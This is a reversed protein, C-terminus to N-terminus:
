GVIAAACASESNDRCVSTTRRQGNYFNRGVCHCCCYSRSVRLCCVRAKAFCDVCYRVPLVVVVARGRVDARECGEEEHLVGSVSSVLRLRESYVLRIISCSRGGGRGSSGRAYAVASGCHLCYGWHVGALLTECPHHIVSQHRNLWEGLEAQRVEPLCFVSKGFRGREGRTQGYKVAANPRTYRKGGECCPM